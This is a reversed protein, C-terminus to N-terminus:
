FIPSRYFLILIFYRGHVFLGGGWGASPSGLAVFALPRPGGQELRRLFPELASM